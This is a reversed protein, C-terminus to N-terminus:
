ILNSELIPSNKLKHFYMHTTQSPFLYLNEPRDDDVIGNIHHIVEKKTLYRGLCEEAVLRSQYVYGDQRVFPHEPKFIRWRGNGKVKPSKKGKTLPIHGKKFLQPLIKSWPKKMGKHAKSIKKKTEKTTIHGKLFESMKRKWEKTHKKGLMGYHFGYLGINKKHEKSLKRGILSKWYCKRSCYKGRGIKIKSPHVKFEKGCYLCKKVIM